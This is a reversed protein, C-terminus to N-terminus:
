DPDAAPEDDKRPTPQLNFVPAPGVNTVQLHDTFLGYLKALSDLAAQKSNLKVRLGDKTEAIEAIAAAQDRTLDDTNAAIVRGDEIRIVDRLDAFAIRRYEERIRHVDHANRREEEAVWAAIAEQIDVKTLLRAGQARATRPSYGAEIAAQTANWRGCYHRVFAARRAGNTLGNGNGNGAM